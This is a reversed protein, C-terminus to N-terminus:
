KAAAQELGSLSSTQIQRMREQLAGFWGIWKGPLSDWTGDDRWTVETASDAARWRITGVGRLSAATEGPLQRWFEYQVSDAAVASLTLRASGQAGKWVIEHGVEGAKGAVERTTEPGLNADMQSWDKWTAFDQVLPLVKAAPAPVTRTTEVHWDNALLMGVGYYVLIMGAMALVMTKFFTSM